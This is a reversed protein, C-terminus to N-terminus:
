GTDKCDSGDAPARALSLLPLGLDRIRALVGHLAAQDRLIGRLVTTGDPGAALAMGDFWAAWRESLQGHVRIEFLAPGDSDVM